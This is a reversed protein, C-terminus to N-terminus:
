RNQSPPRVVLHSARDICVYRLKGPHDRTFPCVRFDGFVDVSVGSDTPTSIAKEINAPLPLDEENVEPPYEIGLMRHTGVPWLYLRMNAYFTLRGHVIFCTDVVHPNTACGVDDASATATLGGLLILGLALRYSRM